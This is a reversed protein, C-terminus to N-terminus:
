ADATEQTCLVACVWLVLTEDHGLGEPAHEGVFSRLYKIAREPEDREVERAVVDILLRANGVHFGHEALLAAAAVRGEENVPHGLASHWDTPVM